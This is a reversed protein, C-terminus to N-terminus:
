EDSMMVERLKGDVARRADVRIGVAQGRCVLRRAGREL